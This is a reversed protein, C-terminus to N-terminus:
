LVSQQPDHSPVAVQQAHGCRSLHPEDSRYSWRQAGAWCRSCVTAAPSPRGNRTARRAPVALAPGARYRWGSEPAALPEAGVLRCGSSYLGYVMRGVDLRGESFEAQRRLADMIGLLGGSVADNIRGTLGAFTEPHGVDPAFLWNLAGEDTVEALLGSRGAGVGMPVVGDRWSGIVMLRTGVKYDVGASFPKDAEGGCFVRDHTVVRRVPVLVYEPRSSSGHLPVVESLALLNYPWSGSFGPVIESVTVTVAVEGLLLAADFMGDHDGPAWFAGSGDSVGSPVCFSRPPVQGEKLGHDSAPGFTELFRSSQNNLYRRVEPWEDPDAVTGDPDLVYTAAKWRMLDLVEPHRSPPKIGDPCLRRFQPGSDGEEVAQVRCGDEHLRKWM